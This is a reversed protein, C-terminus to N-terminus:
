ELEDLFVKVQQIIEITKQMDEPQTYLGISLRCCGEIGLSQLLPMACHHGSRMLIGHQDLLATVDYHHHGTLNFAIVGVPHDSAGYLEIGEIESLAQRMTRILNQEQAFLQARDKQMLWSLDANFAIVEAIPPTGAELRHPLDQYRSSEYSVQVVMEGGTLLPELRELADQKGTLVGVGSPGYMKHSSFVYYDCNIASIDVSFHGVAQAGDVLVWAGYQHALQTLKCVDNCSGLVNSVHSLAVIKPKHQLLREFAAIDICGQTDLPITKLQLEAERALVQWPVLNAHHATQDVLILDNPQVQKLLGKAVMNISETTGHTFIVQEPKPVNLFRMLQHRTAEYASTARESLQHAGRHVNAYDNQYTHMLADLVVQPKQTTAASDLYVLDPHRAIFPFETALTHPQSM